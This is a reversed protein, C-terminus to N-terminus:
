GAGEVTLRILYWCLTSSRDRQEAIRFRLTQNGPVTITASPDEEWGMEGALFTGLSNDEEDYVLLKFDGASGHEWADVDITVTQKGAALEVSYWDSDIADELWGFVQDGSSLEQADLPQNNPEEEDRNYSIPVKTWSAMIEYDHGEGGQGSHLEAVMAHFRDPGTPFVLRIDEGSTSDGVHASMGTESTVLLGPDALSGIERAAVSLAMWGHHEFDVLWYDIDLDGIFTGCGTTELPLTMAQSESGNPELEPLACPGALEGTETDGTEDPGTDIRLDDDLSPMGCGRGQCGLAFVIWLTWYLKM